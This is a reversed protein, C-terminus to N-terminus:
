NLIKNDQKDRAKFLLADMLKILERDIAPEAYTNLNAWAEWEKSEYFKLVADVVFEDKVYENIKITMIETAKLIFESQISKLTKIVDFDTEKALRDDFVCRIMSGLHTLDLIKKIKDKKTM